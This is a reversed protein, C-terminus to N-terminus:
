KKEKIKSFKFAGSVVSYSVVGSAILEALLGAKELTDRDLQVYIDTDSVQERLLALAAAVNEAWVKKVGFQGVMNGARLTLGQARARKAIEIKSKLKAQMQVIDAALLEAQAQTTVVPVESREVYPCRHIVPCIIGTYPTCADGPRAEFVDEPREGLAIRKRGAQIMEATELLFAKARRLHEPTIDMGLEGGCSPYINRAHIAEVEPFKHITALGYIPLQMSREFTKRDPIRLSTKFDDVHAKTGIVRLYDLIAVVAVRVRDSKLMFWIPEEVFWQSGDDPFTMDSLGFHTGQVYETLADLTQVDPMSHTAVDAFIDRLATLDSEVHNTRCHKIYNGTIAHGDRGKRLAFGVNAIMGGEHEDAVEGADTEDLGAAQDDAMHSVNHFAPCQRFQDAQTHSLRVDFESDPWPCVVGPRM